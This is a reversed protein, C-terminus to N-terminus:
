SVSYAYILILGLNGDLVPCAGNAAIGGLTHIVVVCGALDTANETSAAIPCETEHEVIGCKQV